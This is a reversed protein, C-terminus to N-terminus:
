SVGKFDWLIDNIEVLYVGNLDWLVGHAQMLIRDFGM